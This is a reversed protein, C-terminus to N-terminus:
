CPCLEGAGVDEHAPRLVVAAVVALALALVAAIASTVTLGTVFAARAATALEPGGSAVAGGLTERAVQPAGAPLGARYIAMAVSGLVAIGLAAGLEAATESIGSAAGSKEAPAAGVVLETILGFVPGLGFAVVTSATVLTGVGDTGVRTLMLLGVVTVALGGAVVREPRVRALFRPALQSTVVLAAASPLSWLGAHLPSLGAVLQLYQAFFLFDGVMVFFAMLNVALAAAFARNAFLRVDIMPEFSRRQRRVWAAGVLAGGAVAGLAGVSPGDAAVQKIGYVVALVAAISMVASLPDLRGATPDRYEPLVAPGLVLLAAMVPLALLFVASWRHSALVLGGLVPGVASGASFAGIWVGVALSRQRPDTFMHFILSLTSPAITAGAIGLLMRAAILMEASTSFAAVLSVAGFAAAGFMLLRRRGIRDGLTGMTVLAGAVTFGYGDIIWLLQTGTPQLDATIQPIAVHLVTLDMVYLLCALTVVTLGVWERRGARPRVTTMHPLGATQGCSM